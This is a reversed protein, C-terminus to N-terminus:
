NTLKFNGTPYVSKNDVVIEVIGFCCLVIVISSVVYLFLIPSKISQFEEFLASLLKLNM